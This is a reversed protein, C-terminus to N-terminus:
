FLYRQGTRRDREKSLRIRHKRKAASIKARTETSFIKGKNTESLKKRVEASLKKGLWPRANNESMKKSIKAMEEPSKGAFANGNSGGDKINYGNPALTDYLQILYKEWFNAADLTEIWFLVKDDFNEVGYKRLANGLYSKEFAEGSWRNEPNVSQGIYCKETIINRRIYIAIM